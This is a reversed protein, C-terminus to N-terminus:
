SIIDLTDEIVSQHKSEVTSLFGREVEGNGIYLVNAKSSFYERNVDMVKVAKFAKSKNEDKNQDLHESISVFSQTDTPLNGGIFKLILDLNNKDIDEKLVADLLFPFRHINETRSIIENLAFHYAMVTKHLEVGQFPFSSISYLDVYRSESVHKLKLINLYSRFLKRFEREKNMQELKTEESTKMGNIITNLITIKGDIESLESTMRKSLLVDSKNELWEEFTVGDFTEDLLFGFEETIEEEIKISSKKAQSLDSQRLKLRDKIEDLLQQTDNAKQYHSYLGDLSYSLVQTCAPCRDVDNFSQKDINRKTKRLISQHNQILSVENCYNVHKRRALELENIKKNYKDIYSRAKSGYREDLLESFKYNAKDGYKKLVRRQTQLDARENLKERHHVRDFDNTIGLYYDLYDEKFGKYYGLNSFSERVYVWGVSQSIYYPLFMSELPASKLEGKQELMLNFGFQASIYDKLKIHEASNDSDVGYFRIVNGSPEKIYIIENERVISYRETIGGM